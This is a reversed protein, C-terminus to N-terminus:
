KVSPLVDGGMGNMIYVMGDKPENGNWVQEVQYKVRYWIDLFHDNQQSTNTKLSEFLESRESETLSSLAQRITDLIVQNVEDKKNPKQFLIRRPM